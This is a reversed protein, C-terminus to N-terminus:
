ELTDEFIQAQLGAPDAISLRGIKSADPVIAEGEIDYARIEGSPNMYEVELSFTYLTPEM